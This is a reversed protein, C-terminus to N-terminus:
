EGGGERQRNFKELIKKRSKDEMSSAPNIESDKHERSSLIGQLGHDKKLGLESNERMKESILLREEKRDKADNRTKKGKKYEYWEAEREALTMATSGQDLTKVLTQIQKLTSTYRLQLEEIVKSTNQVEEPSGERANHELVENQDRIQDNISLLSVGMYRTAANQFAFHFDKSIKSILLKIEISASEANPRLRARKSIYISVDPDNIIDELEADIGRTIDLYLEGADFGNQM